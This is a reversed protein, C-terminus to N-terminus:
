FAFTSLDLRSNDKMVKAQKKKYKKKYKKEFGTSISKVLPNV